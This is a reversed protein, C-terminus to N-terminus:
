ITLTCLIRSLTCSNTVMAVTAEKCGGGENTQSIICQAHNTQSLDKFSCNPIWWAHRCLQIFTLWYAKSGRVCCRGKPVPHSSFEKVSQVAALSAVFSLLWAVNGARM